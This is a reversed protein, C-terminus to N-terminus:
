KESRCLLHWGTHSTKVAFGKSVLIRLAEDVISGEGFLLISRYRVFRSPDSFTSSFWMPLSSGSVEPFLNRVSDGAKILGTEFIYYRFGLEAFRYMPVFSMANLSPAVRSSADTDTEWDLAIVYVPERVADQVRLASDLESARRDFSGFLAVNYLFALVGFGLIVPHWRRLMGGPGASLLLLFIAPFFFRAGPQVVGFVPDPIILAVILLGGGSLALWWHISRIGFARRFLVFMLVGVVSIWALNLYSPPFLPVIGYSKFFICLPKVCHRVLTTTDWSASGSSHLGTASIYWAALVFSPLVAFAIRVRTGSPQTLSRAFLLGILVVYIVGHTLFILLIAASMCLWLLRSRGEFSVAFFALFWFLMGLALTYNQANLTFMSVAFPSGVLPLASERTAGFRRSAFWFGWSFLSVAISLVIKGAVEYAFLQGMLAVLVSFTANPVPYRVLAYDNGFSSGGAALDTLIKSQYLWNPYDYIPIFRYCWVLAVQAASLLFALSIWLRTYQKSNM